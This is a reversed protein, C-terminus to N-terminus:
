LDIIPLIFRCLEKNARLNTVHRHKLWGDGSNFAQGCLRIEKVKRLHNDVLLFDDSILLIVVANM